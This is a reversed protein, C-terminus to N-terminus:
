AEKSKDLKVLAKAALRSMARDPLNYEVVFLSGASILTRHIESLTKRRAQRAMHHLGFIILCKNFRSPAFPLSEANAKLFKLPFASPQKRAIELASECLDM